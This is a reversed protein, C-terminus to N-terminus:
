SFIFYKFYPTGLKGTVANVFLSCQLSPSASALLKAYKLPVYRLCSKLFGVSHSYKNGEKADM